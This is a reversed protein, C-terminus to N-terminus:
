EEDVCQFLPIGEMDEAAEQTYRLMERTQAADILNRSFYVLGGVPYEELKIRMTEDATTVNAGDTLVEPTVIFMQYVKQKLSMSNLIEEARREIEAEDPANDIGKEQPSDVQEKKVFGAASLLLMMVLILGIAIQVKNRKGTLILLKEMNRNGWDMNNGYLVEDNIM